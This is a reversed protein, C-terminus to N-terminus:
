ERTDNNGCEKTKEQQPQKKTKETGLGQVHAGCISKKQSLSDCDAHATHSKPSYSKCDRIEAGGQVSIHGSEVTQQTQATKTQRKPSYSKCDCNSVECKGDFHEEKLTDINIWTHYHGCKCIKDTM